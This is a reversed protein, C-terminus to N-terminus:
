LWAGAMVEPNEVDRIAHTFALLDDWTVEPRGPEPEDRIKLRLYEPRSLGRHKAARDFRALDEDDVDRILVDTM